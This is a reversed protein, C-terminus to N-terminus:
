QAQPNIVTLQAGWSATKGGLGTVICYYNGEDTPQAKRIVLKKTTAGEIPRGEKFWQYSEPPEPSPAPKVTLTVTTGIRVTRDLPQISLIPPGVVTLRAKKSAIGAAGNTAALWYVGNYSDTNLCNPITLAPEDVVLGTSPPIEHPGELPNDNHWILRQYPASDNLVTSFVATAHEGVIVNKPQQLFAPRRVVELAAPASVEEGVEDRVRVSYIGARSPSATVKLVRARAGPIDQGNFQWQYQLLSGGTAAVQFRVPSGYLATRSEPNQVISPQAGLHFGCVLLASTVFGAGRMSM